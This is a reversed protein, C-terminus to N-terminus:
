RSLGNAFGLPAAADAARAAAPARPGGPPEAPVDHLAGGAGALLAPEQPLLLRRLDAAEAQPARRAYQCRRAHRTVPMGAFRLTKSVTEDCRGRTKRFGPTATAVMAASPSKWGFRCARRM